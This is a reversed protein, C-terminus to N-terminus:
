AAGTFASAFSEFQKSQLAEEVMMEIRKAEDPIVSRVYKKSKALLKLYEDDEQTVLPSRATVREYVESVLYADDLYGFLGHEEEALFDKPHYLYAMVFSGLRKVEPGSEKSQWLTRIRAILSPALLIMQKLHKELIATARKGVRVKIKTHFPDDPLNSLRKLEDKFAQLM